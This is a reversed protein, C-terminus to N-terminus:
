IKTSINYLVQRDIDYRALIIKLANKKSINQALLGLLEKKLGDETYNKIREGKHGEVVVVIEGKIEREKLESLISSLSGRIVEEYLKTIERALCAKRDGMSDKLEAPFRKVRNPSEYFILTYPLTALEALKKKRKAKAKPLFGVFLFSDTPLGALVLASVAANPGPIVELPIGKEICKNILRYGPDQIAPMGSESVLAVSTGEELKQCIHAIKSESSYNHCSVINKKFIEYRALLKRITRTDEAAILDVDGLIRVLRFSADELNGIPTACIFLTGKNEQKSKQINM